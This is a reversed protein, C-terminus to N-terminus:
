KKPQSKKRENILKMSRNSTSFLYYAYLIDIGLCQVFTIFHPMWLGGENAVSVWNIGQFVIAVFLLVVILNSVLYFLVIVGRM